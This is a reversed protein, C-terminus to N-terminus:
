SRQPKEVTRFSIACAHAPDSRYRRSSIFNQFLRFPNGHYDSFRRFGCINTQDYRNKSYTSPEDMYIHMCFILFIRRATESIPGYCRKRCGTESQPEASSLSTRARKVDECAHRRALSYYSQDPRSREASYAVNQIKLIPGNNTSIYGIEHISTSETM